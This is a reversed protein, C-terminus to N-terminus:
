CAGLLGAGQGRCLPCCESLYEVSGPTEGKALRDEFDDLPGREAGRGKAGPGTPFAARARALAAEAGPLEGLRPVLM